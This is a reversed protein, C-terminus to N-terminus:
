GRRERRFEMSFELFPTLSRKEFNEAQCRLPRSLPSVGDTTVEPAPDRLTDQVQQLHRFYGETGQSYSAGLHLSAREEGGAGPSLQGLALGRGRTQKEKWM